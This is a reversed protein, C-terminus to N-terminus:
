AAPTAVVGDGYFDVEVCLTTSPCSAGAMGRGAAVDTAFWAAAGGTPDISAYSNGRDDLAVCVAATKCTV